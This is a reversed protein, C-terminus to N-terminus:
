ITDTTVEVVVNAVMIATYASILAFGWARPLFYGNWPVFVLTTILIALLGTSTIVLTTSFDLPYPQDTQRIIYTGSIGIGLLINLM